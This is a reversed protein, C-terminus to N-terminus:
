LWLLELANSGIGNPPSTVMAISIHKPSPKRTTFLGKESCYLAANLPYSQNTEYQDTQMIMRDIWVTMKGSGITSDEGPMNPIYYTYNVITKIADNNGSGTLDYNLQTGAIFEIVGNVDNLICSTTSIFSTKIINAHQLTTTVSSSLIPQNYSNTTISGSPIPLIIQENWSVSTFAKTRYEDIIGIPATGDSVTAMVTGGIVTLQAIMGAQFEVSPDCIMSAPLAKSYWIPRFM